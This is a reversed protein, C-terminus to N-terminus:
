NIATFPGVIGPLPLINQGDMATMSATFFDITIENIVFNNLVSFVRPSGSLFRENGSM